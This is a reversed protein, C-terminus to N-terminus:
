RSIASGPSAQSFCWPPGEVYSRRGAVRCFPLHPATSVECPTNALIGRVVSYRRRPCFVGTQGDTRVIEPGGTRGKREIATSSVATNNSWRM